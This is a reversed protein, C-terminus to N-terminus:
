ARDIRAAFCGRAPFHAHIYAIAPDSFMREITDTIADPAVLDADLISGGADIGRLAMPKTTLVAPLTNEAEFATDAGEHVYIAHRSRYPSDVPLHEYNLLLVTEGVPVHALSVRDPFAPYADVKHRSIHLEALEADSKGYLHQFPQPDLGKIKFPM